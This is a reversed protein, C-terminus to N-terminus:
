SPPPIVCVKHLLPKLSRMVERIYGNVGDDICEWAPVEYVYIRNFAEQPYIGRVYLVYHIAHEIFEGVVDFM